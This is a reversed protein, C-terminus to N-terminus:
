HLRSRDAKRKTVSRESQVLFFFLVASFILGLMSVALYPLYKGLALALQTEGFVGETSIALFRPSFEAVALVVEAIAGASLLSVLKNNM